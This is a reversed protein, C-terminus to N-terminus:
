RLSITWEINQRRDVAKISSRDQIVFDELDVIVHGGAEFQILAQYGNFIVQAKQQGQSCNSLAIAQFSRGELRQGRYEAAAAPQLTLGNLGIGFSLGLVVALAPLSPVAFLSKM